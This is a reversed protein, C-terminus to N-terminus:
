GAATIRNLYSFEAYASKSIDLRNNGSYANVYAWTPVFIGKEVLLTYFEGLKGNATAEDGAIYATEAADLIAAAADYDTGWLVEENREKDLSYRFEDITGGALTDAYSYNFWLTWEKNERLASWTDDDVEQVQLDIGAKKAQQQIILIAKNIESGEGYGDYWTISLKKGDKEYIGDAGLTYGSAEIYEKAKDVSFTYTPLSDSFGAAFSPVVYKWPKGVGSLAGQVLEDTDVLSAIAKRINEDDLFPMNQNFWFGQIRRDQVKYVTVNPDSELLTTNSDWTATIDIEGTQMAAVAISDETILQLRLHKIEAPEYYDDFRELLIYEEPNSEVYKFPGNGVPIGNEFKYELFAAGDLGDFIHKPLLFLTDDLFRLFNWYSKEYVVKTTREDVATWTGPQAEVGYYEFSAEPNNAWFDQTFVLDDSTLPEGDHWKLGERLTITFETWDANPEVSEALLYDVGTNGDKDIWNYVLPTNFVFRMYTNSPYIYPQAPDDPGWGINYIVQLGEDAGNGKDDQDGGCGALAM